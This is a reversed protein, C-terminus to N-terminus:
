KTLGSELIERQAQTMNNDERLAERAIVELRDREDIIERISLSKTTSEELSANLVVGGMMVLGIVVIPFIMIGMIVGELVSNANSFLERALYIM